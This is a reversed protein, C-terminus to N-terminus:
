VPIPWTMSNWSRSRTRNRSRLSRGKREASLQAMFLITKGKFHASPDDIGAEVFKPREEVTIVVGLNRPDSSEAPLPPLSPELAVTALALHPCPRGNERQPEIVFTPIRDDIALVGRNCIPCRAFEHIM